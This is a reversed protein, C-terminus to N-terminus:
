QDSRTETVWMVMLVVAAGLVLGGVVDTLWHVRLYTRSWAMAVAYVVGASLFLRHRSPWLVGLLVALGIAMAAGSLAAHGSPYAASPEHVLANLPRDRGVLVKTVTSLIQVGGVMAVWAGTLWWRRMMLFVVTVTVAVPLAIPVAGIRHFTEAVGVLWAREADAMATNWADDVAQTCNGLVLATLVVFSVFFGASKTFRSTRRVNPDVL